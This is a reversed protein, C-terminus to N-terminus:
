GRREARRALAAIVDAFDSSVADGVPALAEDPGEVECRYTIVTGGDAGAALTHRVRVTVGEGPLETLDEYGAARDVWMLRFPLAMGDPLVMEGPTGEAFPGELRSAVVGENWESWHVVDALVAFVEGATATSTGSVETVWM